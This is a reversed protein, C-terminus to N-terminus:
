GICWAGRVVCTIILDDRRGVHRMEHEFPHEPARALAPGRPADGGLRHGARNRRWVISRSFTEVVRAVDGPGVPDARRVADLGRETGRDTRRARPLHRVRDTLQGLPQVDGTRREEDALVLHEADAHERRIGHAGTIPEHFFGPRAALGDLDQHSRDRTAVSRQIEQCQTHQSHHTTRPFARRDVCWTGRVVSMFGSSRWRYKSCARCSNLEPSYQNAWSANSVTHREIILSLSARTQCPKIWAAAARRCRARPFRWPVTTTPAAASSFSAPGGCGSISYSITSNRACSARARAPSPFGGRNSNM